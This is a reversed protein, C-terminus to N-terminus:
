RRPLSDLSARAQRFLPNVRLSQEFASRASDPIGLQVYAQGLRWWAAEPLWRPQGEPPVPLRLVYRLHRLAVRPDRGLAVLNRGVGFRAVGDTSDRALM